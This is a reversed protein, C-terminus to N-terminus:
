YSWLAHIVCQNQMRQLQNYEEESLMDATSVVGSEGVGLQRYRYFLPNLPSDEDWYSM